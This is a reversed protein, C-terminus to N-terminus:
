GQLKLSKQANIKEINAIVFAVEQIHKVKIVCTIQLQLM